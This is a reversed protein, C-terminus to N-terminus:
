AFSPLLMLGLAILFEILHLLAFSGAFRNVLEVVLLPLLGFLPEVLLATTGVALQLLALTHVLHPRRDIWNALFLSGLGLGCIFAVLMLTFAYVSSGLLMGLTRTWSVEYVM